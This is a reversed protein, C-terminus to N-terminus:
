INIKYNLKLEDGPLGRIGWNQIPIDIITIEIDNKDIGVLKNINQFLKEILLKKSEDSRGSICNVEIIIYNDTRSDPFIFDEKDLKIFRHFRKDEPFNFAEVVASHIANSIQIKNKDINSKLGYIKVQGM